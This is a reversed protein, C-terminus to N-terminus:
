SEKVVTFKELLRLYIELEANIDQSARVEITMGLETSEIPTIEYKATLPANSFHLEKVETVIPSFTFYIPSM